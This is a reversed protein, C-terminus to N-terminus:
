VCREAFEEGSFFLCVDRRENWVPLCDAFSGAECVWGCQLGLNQDASVGARYFPRHMMCKVMVEVTRNSEPLFRKSVIGALGPV